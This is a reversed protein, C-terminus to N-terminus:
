AAIASMLVEITKAAAEDWSFSKKPPYCQPPYEMARTFAEIAPEILLAGHGLVEPLASRNSAIVPCGCAIAELAPLCFGEYLSATVFARAASYLAPLDRDEVNPLLLVNGHLHLRKAEPGGTVLVLQSPQLNMTAHADILMQVNKHEKANGVYLFFPSTLQYKARITKQESESRHEFAREIGEHITSIKPALHSGYISLIERTTFHSVAIIKRAQRISRQIVTRYALRKLLSAQNPFRHLILDHITCVFPEPCLLPINFHPSFLLDIKARKLIEPFLIQEALSYHPFSTAHLKYGTTSLQKLWDEDVSRVFLVYQLPDHRKLLHTVIERTYRGLGSTSSAFRCDIGITKM